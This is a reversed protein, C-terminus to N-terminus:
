RISEALYLTQIAVSPTKLLSLRDAALNGSSAPIGRWRRSENVKARHHRIYFDKIGGSGPPTRKQRGLPNDSLAAIM